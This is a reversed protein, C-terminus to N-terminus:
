TLEEPDIMLSADLLGDGYGGVECEPDSRIYEALAHVFKLTLASSEAYTPANVASWFAGRLEEPWDEPPHSLQEDNLPEPTM